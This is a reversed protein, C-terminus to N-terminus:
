ALGILLYACVAGAITDVTVRRASLLQNLIMITIHLLLAATLVDIALFVRIDTSNQPLWRWGIGSDGCAAQLGEQEKSPMVIAFAGASVRNAAVRNRLQAVGEGSREILRHDETQDLPPSSATTAPL